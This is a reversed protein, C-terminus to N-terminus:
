GNTRLRQRHGAQKLRRAAEDALTAHREITYVVKALRALVAAAYGSGTGVELVKDDESIGAAEAMFAVMYPQSITQGEGIPLPTDEFAFEEMGAEVFKERPVERMAGLIRQDRIGRRALQREVMQERATHITM